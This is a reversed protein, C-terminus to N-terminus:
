GYRLDRFFDPCISRSLNKPRVFPQDSDLDESLYEFDGFFVRNEAAKLVDTRFGNRVSAKTPILIALIAAYNALQHVIVLRVFQQAAFEQDACSHFDCLDTGFKSIAESILESFLNKPSKKPLDKKKIAKYIESLSRFFM